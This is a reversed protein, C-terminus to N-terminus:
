VFNFWRCIFYFTLLTCVAYIPQVASCAATGRNNGELEILDVEALMVRSQAVQVTSIPIRVAVRRNSGELHATTINREAVEESGALMEPPCGVRTTSNRSSGADWRNNDEMCTTTTHTIGLARRAAGIFLLIDKHSLGAVKRTTRYRGSVPTLKRSGSTNTPTGRPKKVVTLRRRTPAGQDDGDDGPRRLEGRKEDRCSGARIRRKKIQRRPPTITPEEEESGAILGQKIWHLWMRAVVVRNTDLVQLEKAQITRDGPSDGLSCGQM